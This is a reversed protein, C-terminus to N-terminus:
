GRPNAQADCLDEPTGADKSAIRSSAAESNREAHTGMGEQPASEDVRLIVITANDSAGRNLVIQLLSQAAQNLDARQTLADALENERVPEWLGDSCLVVYDGPELDLHTKDIVAELTDIYYDPLPTRDGLSRTLRSREPHTRIEEMDIEGQLALGMALSHDRTLTQIERGRILYLRCDGVHGITLRRDVICACVLTCGGQAGREKLAAYVAENAARICDRPVEVQSHDTPRVRGIAVSATHCAEQVALASAVEGASMGGMGDAVCLFAWAHREDEWEAVGTLWAYADQNTTRTPELGITSTGAISYRTLPEHRRALRLLDCHLEGATRYRSELPGLCRHLIQPVGPIPAPPVWTSLQAGIEGIPQGNVMYYLIAGVGYIDARVDLPADGLIEPASYGTYYFPAAPKEGIRIARSFDILKVPRSVVVHSPRLGLYLWGREHLHVLAAAIQTVISLLKRYDVKSSSLVELLTRGVTAETALYIRGEHKFHTVFRPFMPSSVSALLEAEHAFQAAMRGEAWTERLWLTPGEPVIRAEYVNENPASRLLASVRLEGGEPISLQTGEALPEPSPVEELPEALEELDGLNSKQPGFVIDSM